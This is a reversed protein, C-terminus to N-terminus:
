AIFRSGIYLWLTIMRVSRGGQGLVAWILGGDGRQEGLGAAVEPLSVPSGGQGREVRQQAEGGAVRRRQDLAAPRQALQPSERRRLAVVLRRQRLLRPEERRQEAEPAAGGGAPIERRRQVAEGGGGLGIRGARPRPQLRARGQAAKPPGFRGLSGVAGREFAIGAQRRGQEAEAQQGPLPAVPEGRPAPELGHQRALRQM